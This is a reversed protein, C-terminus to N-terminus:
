NVLTSISWLLINPSFCLSLFIALGTLSLDLLMASMFSVFTLHSRMFTQWLGIDHMFTRTTRDRDASKVRVRNSLAEVTMCKEELFLVACAHTAWFCFFHLCKHVHKVHKVYFLM